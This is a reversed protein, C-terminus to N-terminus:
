IVMSIHKILMVAAILSVFIAVGQHLSKAPAHKLIQSGLSVGLISGALFRLTLPWDMNQLQLHTLIAALSIVFIIALSTTVARQLPLMLLMVLAPVILFGGGIGFLGTLLGTLAGVLFLLIWSTKIQEGLHSSDVSHGSGQGALSQLSLAKYFLVVSVSIMLVAFAIMLTNSSLYAACKAGVPAFLVGSAAVTIAIRKELHQWRWKPLLGAFATFCIVVLSTTLAQHASAHLGYVLLPMTVVAGGGGTIGLMLGCLLGLIIGM